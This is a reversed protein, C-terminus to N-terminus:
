KRTKLYRTGLDRARPWWGILPKRVAGNIAAPRPAMAVLRRCQATYNDQTRALDTDDDAVLAHRAALSYTGEM